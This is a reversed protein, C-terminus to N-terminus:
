SERIPLPKLLPRISQETKLDMPCLPFRISLPDPILFYLLLCTFAPPITTMRRPSAASLSTTRTLKQTIQLSGSTPHIQASYRCNVPIFSFCNRTFIQGAPQNTRQIVYYSIKGRKLDETELEDAIRLRKPKYPTAAEEDETIFSHQRIAGPLASAAAGTLPHTCVALFVAACFLAMTRSNTKM